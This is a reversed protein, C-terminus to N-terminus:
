VAAWASAGQNSLAPLPTLGPRRSPTCLLRRRRAAPGMFSEKQSCKPHALVGEGPISARELPHLHLAPRAQPPLLVAPRLEPTHFLAHPLLLRRPRQWGKGRAVGRKMAAPKEGEVGRRAATAPVGTPARPALVHCALVRRV